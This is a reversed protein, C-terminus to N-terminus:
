IRIALVESKAEVTNKEVGPPLTDGHEFKVELYAKAGERLAELAEERTHGWVACGPLIPIEAEWIGDEEEQEIEIEFIYTKL